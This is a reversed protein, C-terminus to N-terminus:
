IATNSSPVTGLPRISGFAGISTGGWARNINIARKTMLVWQKYNNKLKEGEDQYEKAKNKDDVTLNAASYRLNNRRYNHAAMLLLEGIIGDVWYYRYPFNVPTYYIALDPPLDNWLDIPRRIAWVIQSDAFEVNDLLFNDAECRDMVAMRIEAITIGKSQGSVHSLSEEVELYCSVRRRIVSDKSLSIEGLLVGPKTLDAASLALRVRGSTPDQSMIMEKSIDPFQKGWQEKAIFWAQDYASLDVPDGCPERLVVTEGHETYQQFHFVPWDNPCSERDVLCIDPFAM